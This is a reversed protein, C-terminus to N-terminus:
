DEVESGREGLGKITGIVIGQYEMFAKETINKKWSLPVQSWLSDLYGM